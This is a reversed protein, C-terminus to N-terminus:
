KSHVRAKFSIVLEMGIRDNGNSLFELPGNQELGFWNPAVCNLRVTIFSITSQKSEMGRQSSNSPMADTRKVAKKQKSRLNLPRISLATLSKLQIIKFVSPPKASVITWASQNRTMSHHSVEMSFSLHSICDM